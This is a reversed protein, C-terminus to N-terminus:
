EKNNIINLAKEKWIPHNEILKKYIANKYTDDLLQKPEKIYDDFNVTPDTIDYNNEIPYEDDYYDQAAGFELNNLDNQYGEILEPNVTPNFGEPVYTDDIKKDYSVNEKPYFAELFQQYNERENENLNPDYNEFYGDSGIPGTKFGDQATRQLIFMLLPDNLKNAREYESMYDEMYEEPIQINMGKTYPNNLNAM